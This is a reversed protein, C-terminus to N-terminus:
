ISRSLMWSWLRAHLSLDFCSSCQASIHYQKMLRNWCQGLPVFVFHSPKVDFNQWAWIILNKKLGKLCLLGVAQPIKFDNKCATQLKEVGWTKHFRKIFGCPLGFTQDSFKRYCLVCLKASYGCCRATYTVKESTKWFYGWIGILQLKFEEAQALCQSITDTSPGPLGPNFTM